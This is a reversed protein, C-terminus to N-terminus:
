KRKGTVPLPSSAGSDAFAELSNLARGRFDFLTVNEWVSGVGPVSIYEPAWYFMGVGRSCPANEIIGKEKM